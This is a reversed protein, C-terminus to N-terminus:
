CLVICGGSITRCADGPRGKQSAYLGTNRAFIDIAIWNYPGETWTIPGASRLHEILQDIKNM